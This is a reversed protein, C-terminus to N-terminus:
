SNDFTVYLGVDNNGISNQPNRITVITYYLLGWFGVRIMLAGINYYM